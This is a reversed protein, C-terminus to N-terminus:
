AATYRIANEILNALVQRLATPDFRVMRADPEIEINLALKKSEASPRVANFLEAVVSELDVEAPKPTWASSEYRSLDLLDDVIRQMRSTNAVVLDVFRQRDAPALQPD